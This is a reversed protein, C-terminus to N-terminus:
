LNATAPMDAPLAHAVGKQRDICTENERIATRHGRSAFREQAGTDM